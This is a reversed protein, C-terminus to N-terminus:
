VDFNLLPEQRPGIIFLYDFTMIPLLISFMGGQVYPASLTFIAAILRVGVFLIFLYAGIIVMWTRNYDFPILYTIVALVVYVTYLVISNKNNLEFKKM